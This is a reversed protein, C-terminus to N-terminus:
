ILAADFEDGLCVKLLELPIRRLEGQMTTCACKTSGQTVLKGDRRIAYEFVLSARRAQPVWVEVDLSDDFFAPALYKATNEAVPLGLNEERTWRAYDWGNARLFEVRAAEFYRLYTAHHVVQAADTDIYGVRIKHIHPRM